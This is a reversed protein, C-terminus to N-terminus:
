HSFVGVLRFGYLFLDSDPDDYDRFASRLLHPGYYYSGGRIVHEEGSSPGRPNNRPSSSYYSKGYWDQTWERVNGHMDYLGFANAPFSGVPTTGGRRGKKGNSYEKGIDYIFLGNFNAQDLSLTEGFYFPGKTGARAAYEWEAETPLRFSKGTQSNLKRVFIQIDNWSINEVPYNEGDKSHSSNNGMVKQWQGQTVEYKSMYFGDVCVEHVPGEHSDRLKESPPSGMQFCGGEVWVFEMSTTLDTYTRTEGLRSKLQFVSGAPMDAAEPYQAVLNQWAAGKMDRGFPSSVIKVYKELDERIQAKRKTEKEAKLKAFKEKRNIEEADRQKRLEELKRDQDERQEVMALMSDLINDSGSSTGLNRKMEAIKADMAALEKEQRAIEAMEKGHVEAAEAEMKKLYEIEEQRAKTEESLDKLRTDQKLFLVLEGGQQGGTDKLSGFQPFQEANEVVGAKINSFMDSPVLFPKNNEKLTTVLFHSFVSNNGFGADSVPELGGSTIAQRSSLQYAKKVVKDTVEPLKGRHGRFFDGAFCSDSILLIHKAKIADVKLYDKINNNSIWASADQMGSEVPIWSGRKTISDLHGHGAYFIFLSDDGRVKNALYRLKGIINKRTAEEDYLEILQKKDFHYRSLLVNKVAKADNVATKLRPWHIYTDIGIVFLWQDGTVEAGTPSIPKVSLGRDANAYYPIILIVTFFSLLILNRIRLM